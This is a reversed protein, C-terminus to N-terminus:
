GRSQGRKVSSALANKVAVTQGRALVKEFAAELARVLDDSPRAGHGDFARNGTGTM